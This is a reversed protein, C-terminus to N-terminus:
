GDRIGDWIGSGFVEVFSLPSIFIQQSVMKTAVFKVFNFKKGLFKDSLEIFKPNPIRSGSDSIRFLGIGSGPGPILFAGSGQDRIRLVSFYM